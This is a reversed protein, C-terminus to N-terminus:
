WVAVPQMGALNIRGSDACYIAHRERLAVAQPKTMAPELVPWAPPPHLRPGPRRRRAGRPQRQDPEADLELEERWTAVLGPARPHDAGGGRRPRAADVLQGAGAGCPQDVTATEGREDRDIVYLAGVRDRYLGFNKDCSYAVLAEDVADLVLRTAWADEDLGDGLGQYALDIFPM